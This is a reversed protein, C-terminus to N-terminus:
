IASRPSQPTEPTLLTDATRPFRKYKRFAVAHAYQRQLLTSPSAETYISAGLSNILFLGAPSSHVIKKTGNSIIGGQIETKITELVDDDCQRNM